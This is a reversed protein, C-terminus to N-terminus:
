RYQENTSGGTEAIQEVTHIFDRRLESLQTRADMLKRRVIAVNSILESDLSRGSSYSAFAELRIVEELIDNKMVSWRESLRIRLGRSCQRAASALLLNRVSHANIDDSPQVAVEPEHVAAPSLMFYWGTIIDAIIFAATDPDIEYAARLLWGILLELKETAEATDQFGFLPHASPWKGYETQPLQWNSNVCYIVLLEQAARGTPTTAPWQMIEKLNAYAPVDQHLLYSALYRVAYRRIEKSGQNLLQKLWLLTEPPPVAGMRRLLDLFWRHQFRLLRQWFLRVVEQLTPERNLRNLVLSLGHAVYRRAAKISNDPLLQFVTSHEKLLEAADAMEEFEDIVEYLWVAAEDAEYQSAMEVLLQRAGAAIEKRPSFLLGRRRLLNFSSEYFFYHEDRIHQSLRARLGDVQFDVVRKASSVSGLRCRKMISDAERRWRRVLPVAEVVSVPQEGATTPARDTRKVVDETTDGLYLEVLYSFDQPSLNSFFTACYLVADILPDARDFLQSVSCRDNAHATPRDAVTAPLTGANLHRVIERYFESNNSSWLNAQRQEGITEALRAHEELRASELLPCLFDIEWIQLVKLRTESYEKIQLPSVVCIMCTDTDALRTQYQDVMANNVLFSRLISNSIDDDGTASAAWVFVRSTARKSDPEKNASALAAKILQRFNYNGQAKRDLTVLNKCAFQTQYAIRKAVDLAIDDDDCSVFLIRQSLLAGSYAVFQSEDLTQYSRESSKLNEIMVFDDPSQDPELSSSRLDVYVSAASSNAGALSTILGVSSDNAMVKIRNTEGQQGSEETPETPPPPKEVPSATAPGNEPKDPDSPNGDDPLAADDPKPVEAVTEPPLNETPSLEAVDNTM